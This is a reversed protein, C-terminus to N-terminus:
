NIPGPRSFKIVDKAYKVQIVDGNFMKLASNYLKLTPQNPYVKKSYALYIKLLIQGMFLQRQIFRRKNFLNMKNKAPLIWNKLLQMTDGTYDEEGTKAMRFTQIAPFDNMVDSIMQESYCEIADVLFTKNEVFAFKAGRHGLQDLIEKIGITTLQTLGLAGTSSIASMDFRSELRIKSTVMFPDTGFCYSAKVIETALEFETIGNTDLFSHTCAEAGKECQIMSGKKEEKIYDELSLIIPKFSQLVVPSALFPNM